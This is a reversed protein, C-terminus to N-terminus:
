WVVERGRGERRAKEKLIEGCLVVFRAFEDVSMARWRWDMYDRHARWGIAMGGAIGLALLWWFGTVGGGGRGGAQRSEPM